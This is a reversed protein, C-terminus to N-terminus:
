RAEEQKRYRSCFERVAYEAIGIAEAVERQRVVKPGVRLCALYVSGAALTRPSFGGLGRAGTVTTRAEELLKAFYWREELNAGKIRRTIAADSQLKAVVHPILDEPRVAPLPLSSERGIRLLQSKSVCHGAETYAKLLDSLRIRSIGASRCAHLLSYASIAPVTARYVKRGPLLRAATLVASKVVGKPLLFRSAVRETLGSCQILSADRGIADPRLRSAGFVRGPYSRHGGNNPMQGIYSGLAEPRAESARQIIGSTSSTGLVLGCSPCTVEGGVDVLKARCEPCSEREVFEEYATLGPKGGLM